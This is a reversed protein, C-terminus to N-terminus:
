TPFDLYSTIMVGQSVMVEVSERSQTDQPSAHHPRRLSGFGGLSRYAATGDDVNSAGVGRAARRVGEGVVSM